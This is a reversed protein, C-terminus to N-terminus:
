AGPEEFFTTTTCDYSDVVLKLTKVAPVPCADAAAPEEEDGAPEEEAAPTEEDGPQPAPAGEERNLSVDPQEEDAGGPNGNESVTPEEGPAQEPSEGEDVPDCSGGGHQEFHARINCADPYPTPDEKAIAEPAGQEAAGDALEIDIPLEKSATVIYAKEGTGCSAGRNGDDAITINLSSVIVAPTTNTETPAANKQILFGTAGEVAFSSQALCDADPDTAAAEGEAPAEAPAADAAAWLAQVLDGRSVVTAAAASGEPPPTGGTDSRLQGDSCGVSMVSIMIAMVSIFPLPRKM